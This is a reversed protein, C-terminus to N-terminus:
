PTAPKRVRWIMEMPWHRSWETEEAACYTSTAGVPPQTEILGEVVLGHARFLHIWDGYPLYFEVSDEWEVRGMGFYDAILRREVTDTARETCVTRWPTGTAFAFLGGPRLLRSAEPVTRSPDAFTMAGWDCFVVDFSADPLPVAEASAEILPFSVGAEAMLRRAHEVQRPSLDLGVPRAGVRALAISWRAAGCGLELVDKGAVDGLVHLEAEPIRWLGWAMALAGGLVGSHRAEYDDSTRQWMARNTREHASLHAPQTSDTSGTTPPSDLHDDSQPIPVQAGTDGVAMVYERAYALYHAVGDRSRQREAESVPRVAKAPVGMILQGAQFRKGEPVLAGAATICGAGILAGNLVTAHMGVLVGDELTAGHVVAGHGITCDAGVICPFGEDTHLVCNDQLNTRAGVRIPAADGRLVAGFWVNAEAEITVDGAVVATPAIFADEAIRPRIGHYPLIPM